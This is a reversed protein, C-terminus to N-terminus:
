VNFASYSLLHSILKEAFPRVMALELVDTYPCRYKLIREKLELLFPSIEKKAHIHPLFLVTLGVNNIKFFERLLNRYLLM